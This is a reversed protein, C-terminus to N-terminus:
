RTVGSSSDGFPPCTSGQYIGCCPHTRAQLERGRGESHHYISAHIYEGCLARMLVRGRRQIGFKYFRGYIRRIELNRFTEAACGFVYASNNNAMAGRNARGAERGYYRLGTLLYDFGYWATMPRCRASLRGFTFAFSWTSSCGGAWIGPPIADTVNTVCRNVCRISRLLKADGDPLESVSKGKYCCAAARRKNPAPTSQKILSANHCARSINSASVVRRGVYTLHVHRRHVAACTLDREDSLRGGWGFWSSSGNWPGVARAVAGCRRAWRSALREDTDATVATPTMYTYLTQTM